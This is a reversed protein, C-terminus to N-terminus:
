IRIFPQLMRAIIGRFALPADMGALCICDEDDDAIPQHEVSGDLDAFDGANFKGLADSYGGRLILTLENGRHSHVPMKKGAAIRLLFADGEDCAIKLQKMGPVITKWPLDDYREAPLLKALMPPIEGATEAVPAAVVPRVPEPSPEDLMALVAERRHNGLPKAELSAMLEGGVSEARALEGKCRQCNQLHCGVVLAMAAPLSGAAYSYLTEDTPHHVIKSM